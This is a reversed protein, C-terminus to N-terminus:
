EKRRGMFQLLYLFLNVFDLYLILAGYISVKAMTEQDGLMEQSMRKIKQVDYATLLTFLLVGAASILYQFTENKFYMNVLGGIILGILAMLLYSGMASLDAKTFYGYIAMAGFMGSTVLFTAFISTYTYVLFISSLTIGLTAAYVLFLVAAMAFSMRNLLATIVIVLALQGIFLGILVLSNNFIANVIAPSSAVYYATAATIALAVCMWAYVRYMLNTERAYYKTGSYNEFM